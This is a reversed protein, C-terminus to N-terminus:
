AKAKAQAKAKQMVAHGFRPKNKRGPPSGRRYTHLPRARAKMALLNKQRRRAARQSTSGKPVHLGVHLEKVGGVWFSWNATQHLFQQVWSTSVSVTGGHATLMRPTHREMAAM